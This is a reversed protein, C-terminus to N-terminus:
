NVLQTELWHDLGEWGVSRGEKLALQYEEGLDQELGATIGATVFPPLEKVSRGFVAEAIGILVAGSRPSGRARKVRALMVLNAAVSRRSGIDRVEHVARLALEYAAELNGDDFEFLAQVGRGEAAGRVEGFKEHIRISEIALQRARAMKGLQWADIAGAGVAYGVSILDGAAEFGARAAQHLEQAMSHDGKQRALLGLFHSADAEWRHM